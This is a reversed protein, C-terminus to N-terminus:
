KRYYPKIYSIIKHWFTPRTSDTYTKSFYGKHTDFYVVNIELETHENIITLWDIVEASELEFRRLRSPDKIDIRFLERFGLLFLNGEAILTKLPFHNM